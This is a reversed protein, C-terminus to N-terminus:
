IPLDSFSIKIVYINGLYGLIKNLLLKGEEMPEEVPATKKTKGTAGGSTSPGQSGQMTDRLALNKLNKEAVKRNEEIVDLGKHENKENRKQVQAKAEEERKMQMDLHKKSQIHNDFANRTNFHKSCLQCYSSTDKELEAQQGTPFTSVYM